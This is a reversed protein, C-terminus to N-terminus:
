EARVVDIMAAAILLLGTVLLLGGPGFAMMAGLSSTIWGIFLATYASRKESSM